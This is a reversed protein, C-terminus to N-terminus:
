PLRRAAALVEIETVPVLDQAQAWWVRGSKGLERVRLLPSWHTPGKGIVQVILDRKLTKPRRGLRKRKRRTGPVYLRRGKLAKCYSNIEPPDKAAGVATIVYRWPISTQSM